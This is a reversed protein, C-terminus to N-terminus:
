WSPSCPVSWRESRCGCHVCSPGSTSCRCSRWGVFIPLSYRGQYTLGARSNTFGNILLPLALWVVVLAALAVFTRRTASRLHIVAVLGLAVFWAAYVFSPLNTDLWGLVGITQHLYEGWNDVSRRLAAAPGVHEDIARRQDGNAFVGALAVFRGPGAGDPRGGVGLVAVLAPRSTTSSEGRDAGRCGRRGDVRDLDAADVRCRGVAMLGPDAAEIPLRDDTAVRSLCAWIAVFGAIEIANPNVSAMLFLAMPTLAALQLAVVDARLGIAQRRVDGLHAVCRLAGGLCPPVAPGQRITGDGGCAARGPRLVVAPLAGGVLHAAALDLDRVIAPVDPQGNYCNLNPPGLSDPGDFERLNDPFGPAPTGLLEGHATGYAKYIHAPEDPSAFRPVGVAWTTVVVLMAFHLVAVRRCPKTSPM